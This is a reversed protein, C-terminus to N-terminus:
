RPTVMCKCDHRLGSILYWNIIVGVPNLMGTVKPDV